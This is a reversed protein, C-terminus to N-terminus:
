DGNDWMDKYIYVYERTAVPDITYYYCCLKKFLLM